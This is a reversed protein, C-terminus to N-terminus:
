KLLEIRANAYVNLLHSWETELTSSVHHIESLAMQRVEGDEFNMYAMYELRDTLATSGSSRRSLIPNDKDPVAFYRCVSEFFLQVVEPLRQSSHRLAFALKKNKERVQQLQYRGERLRLQLDSYHVTPAQLLTELERFINRYDSQVSLLDSFIPEIHDIFLQRRGQERANLFAVTREIVNLISEIM